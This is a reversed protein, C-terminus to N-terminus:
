SAATRLLARTRDYAALERQVPALATEQAAHRVAEGARRRIRDQHRGAGVRVSTRRVAAVVLWGVLGVAVLLGPWTVRDSVQPIPPGPLGLWAAVRDLLIWVVGVAVTLETVLWLAATATWWRRPEPELPVEALATKVATPLRDGAAAAAVDVAEAWFWPLGQRAREVVALLAHRAELWGAPTSRAERRVRGRRGDGTAPRMSAGGVRAAVGAVSRMVRAITQLLRLLPTRVRRRATSVYVDRAQAAFGDLDTLGALDAVLQGADLAGAADAAGDHGSSPAELATLLAGAVTRVDAAIREAVARQDRVTRALHRRLEDVGEGTVTSTLLVDPGAGDIAVLRELDTRCTRREADDLRDIHNLAVVMVEAHERLRALYGEHLSRQAYKHPDVVWVLVDVREILRDATTRNAAVVSDVDPLDVLVLGDLGDLGDPGDAADDHGDLEDAADDHHRRDPTVELWDLLGASEARDGVSWATAADTTPRRVDVDALPRRALANFLSSKGTGTGGVLAVVVTRDGRARREDTRRLVARADALLDDPVRGAGLAVAESLATLRDELAVRRPRRRRM